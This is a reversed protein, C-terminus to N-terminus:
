AAASELENFGQGDLENFTVTLRELQEPTIDSLPLRAHGGSWGRLNMLAKTTQPQGFERFLERLPYWAMHLRRAKTADGSELARFTKLILEPLASSNTSTAGHFGVMLPGLFHLDSAAIVRFRKLLRGAIRDVVSPTLDGQKIGIINPIEGLKELLEPSIIHGTEPMNYIVIGTKSLPAIEKFYDFIHNERVESVYPVTVMSIGGLAGNLQVLEKVVAPESGGAGLLVPLRGDVMEMTQRSLEVREDLSMTAFEGYQGGILLGDYRMEIVRHVNQAHAVYDVEGDAGFPTIAINFLGGIKNTAEEPTSLM